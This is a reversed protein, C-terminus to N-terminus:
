VQPLFMWQVKQMNKCTFVRTLLVAETVVNGVLQLQSQHLVGSLIQTSARSGLGPFYEDGPCGRDALSEFGWWVLNLM